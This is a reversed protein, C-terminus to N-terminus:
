RGPLHVRPSRGALRSSAVQSSGREPARQPLLRSLWDGVTASSSQGTPRVAGTDIGTEPPPSPQVVNAKSMNYRQSAASLYKYIMTPTRGAINMAQEYDREAAAFDRMKVYHDGRLALVDANDPDLELVYTLDEIAGDFNGLAARGHARGLLAVVLDRDRELADDFAWIAEPPRQAAALALGRLAFVWASPDRLKTAQKLDSVGSEARDALLLALGRWAYANTDAPQLRVLEEADELMKDYQGLHGRLAARLERGEFGDPRMTVVDDLIALAAEPDTRSLGKGQELHVAVDDSEVRASPPGQRTAVAEYFDLVIRRTIEMPQGVASPDAGGAQMDELVPAAAEAVRLPGGAELPFMTGFMEFLKAREQEMQEAAATQSAVERRTTVLALVLIVALGVAALGLSALQHRGIFKRARLAVGTRRAQIPQSAAFRQLDDCLAGGTQYRRARDREMAKLCITELDVPIEPNHTRPPLPESTLIQSIVRERTEGPYPPRLTLWEYMTAGLSYIDTRHDVKTAEGSLQEPSMYLPSGVLEGTITVGPQESLRALGFDSICMTDDDGLILNHPKIDRHVVGQQHAYDLADAIAAVHRVVDAYYEKSSCVGSLSPLIVASDGSDEPAPLPQAKAPHADEEEGQEPRHLIVTDDMDATATDTTQRDRTESIISNLGPGNILEMAYYFIGNDEGLAYIPVIHPHHLKAAAQAERQFRVVAKPSASVQQGLVKVAVTRKLSRQWAEYVTGMGGRGIEQRLEFDGGLVRVPPKPSAPAGPGPVYQGGSPSPNDPRDSM